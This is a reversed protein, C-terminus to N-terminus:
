QRTSALYIWRWAAHQTSASSGLPLISCTYRSPDLLVRMTITFKFQTWNQFITLTQRASFCLFSIPLVYLSATFFSLFLVCLSHSSGEKHSATFASYPPHPHPTSHNQSSSPPSPVLRCHKSTKSELFPHTLEKIMNAKLLSLSRLVLLFKFISLWNLLNQLPLQGSPWLLLQSLPVTLPDCVHINWSTSGIHSKKSSM